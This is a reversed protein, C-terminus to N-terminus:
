SSGDKLREDQAGEQVFAVLPDVKVLLTRDNVKKVKFYDGEHWGLRDTNLEKDLLIQGPSLDWDYDLYLM